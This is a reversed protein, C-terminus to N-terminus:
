SALPDTSLLSFFLSDHWRGGTWHTERHRGDLHFQLAEFLWKKKSDFSYIEAWLRHLGLERFAYDIMVRAADPAFTEDVYLGGEGIYLSFDATRNVWDIYCLGCAGLLRYTSLEVIAFMRTHPDSNVSKDFWMRQQTSNLERYERFYRRLDPQNRWALLQLLDSEEIARLGTHRGQIM